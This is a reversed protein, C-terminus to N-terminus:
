NKQLFRFTAEKIFTSITHTRKVYTRAAWIQRYMYIVQLRIINFILVYHLSYFFGGTQM